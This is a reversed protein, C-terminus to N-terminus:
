AVRAYEAVLHVKWSAPLWRELVVAARFTAENWAFYSPDGVLVLRERRMGADRAWRDLAQPTNARYYVPFADVADRGYAWRVVRDQLRKLHALARSARPIPHRANPALLVFIGGPRLVRAVEAFVRGPRALHECVWSSVVLDFHEMPFPLGEAVAQCRALAAVRHEHLSALDPDVGVWRARPFLREVIGGRGGGLDL